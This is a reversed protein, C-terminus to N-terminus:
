KRKARRFRLGLLSSLGLGLYASFGSADMAVQSLSCGQGSAKNFDGKSGRIPSTGQSIEQGDTAGDGDTDPNRPDSEGADVFGNHNADEVGDELGDQDTDKRAGNTEGSDFVGNRNTDENFDLIGDGDTDGVKPDLEDFDVLGNHNRDEIGDALGDADTDLNRPDTEGPEFVGNQNRDEAGDPLGDGDTDNNYSDSEGVDRICNKNTDELVDKIGDRDSDRQPPIFEGPICEQKCSTDSNLPCPDENDNIIDGDSDRKRFNTENPSQICDNNIDENGDPIGDGDSDQGDPPPVGPTCANACLPNPDLPCVDNGDTIGDNDTDPDFPDSENPDVVCPHERDEESNKLGDGDSDIFENILETNCAGECSLDPNNPCEDIGDLKGDGDTDKKYVNTEGGDPDGCSHDLDEFFDPVGDGDTDLDKEPEEGPICPQKCNRFSINPCVDTSDLFGDGDTDPKRPDSERFQDHVGDHNSDEIGDAKGDFDTDQANGNTEGDTDKKTPDLEDSDRIGDQDHDEAGDKIFDGDTDDKTPDSEGSDLEGNKNRDEIGDKIGDGDTDVNTPDTEGPDVVCNGGQGEAIPKDELRDYIGDGDYDATPPFVQGPFCPRPGTGPGGPGGGGTNSLHVITSAPSTTGDPAIGVAFVDEGSRADITALFSLGSFERLDTIFNTESGSPAGRFIEIRDVSSPLTGSLVFTTAASNSPSASSIEPKLTTAPSDIPGANNRYLANHTVQNQTADLLQVGFGTNDFYFGHQITNRQSGAEVRIGNGSRTVSVGDIMNGNSGAKICIGSGKAGRITIGKITVQNSDLEIACAGDGLASADLIVAGSVGDGRELGFGAAAKNDLRIPARLTITGATDFIIKETCFSPLSSNQINYGQELARRLSGNINADDVMSTVKCIKGGNSDGPINLGGAILDNGILLTLLVLALGAAKHFARM